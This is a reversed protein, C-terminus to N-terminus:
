EEAFPRIKIDRFSVTGPHDQLVIYGKAAKGFKPFKVFKSKAVRQDWEKSGIIYEYSKVGNLYTECKQPTVIIRLLNWRGAPKTADVKSSYLDYLWGSLQPDHGEKNDVIQVEPGTMWPYVADETVHFMM